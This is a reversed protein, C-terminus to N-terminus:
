GEIKSFNAIADFTQTIAALLKLRNRRTTPDPDNVLVKNFFTDIVARLGSLVEMGREFEGNATLDRTKDLNVELAQGLEKEAPEALLATDFNSGAATGDKKAEIALINAARRYGALLPVGDGTALFDQLARARQVIRLLDDGSGTGLVAEVRDHGIGEDRLQVKLREALFAFVPAADTRRGYLGAASGIVGLLSLHLGNDRILRIIGLAARRLAYPDRSGTPLEGIAFFGALTDLKDALAVAISVPRTPCADGPGAPRYHEAIADAVADPEGQRRAYYGGMIGQVEPFEGVMGTVLDAKALLGARAAQEPDCGPISAALERALASMREAKERVTGLKAHFTVKELKPLREELRTSVDQDWFFRADALRARLVRENGAVIKGGGDSGPVNAVLAFRPASAGDKRALTFYRQNERMTVQRVERPLGMFDNDITGLLVTPWEVLGTVEELLGPDPVLELGEAAAAAHLQRAIEAKREDRDLIVFRTNLKARYDAFDHVPFPEPALFRHGHTVNTGTYTLTPPFELKATLPVGGMVMLINHLPRVWHLPHASWRMSKPWPFQSVIRGVIEPILDAAPQGFRKTVAFWFVGKGTDRQEAAELSDIGSGKLFGQIAADPSGVKPGKREELRDPQQVPLGDIRLALRRPTVHAEAETYGLQAEDLAACFLRKLDDAAQKQMRAPIEEGFLELLFEAM